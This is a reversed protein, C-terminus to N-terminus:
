CYGPLQAALPLRQQATTSCLSSPQTAKCLWYSVLCNPQQLAAVPGGNALRVTLATAQGFNPLQQAAILCARVHQYVSLSLAQHHAPRRVGDANSSERVRHACNRHQRVGLPTLSIYSHLSVTTTLLRVLPPHHHHHIHYFVSAPQPPNTSRNTLPSPPTSADLTSITM